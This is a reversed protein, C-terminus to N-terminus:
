NKIRIIADWPSQSFQTHEQEIITISAFQSEKILKPSWERVLKILNSNQAWVFWSIGYEQVNKKVFTTFQGVLKRDKGISLNTMIDKWDIEKELMNKIQLLMNIEDSSYGPSLTITMTPLTKVTGNKNNKAVMKLYKDNAINFTQLYNKFVSYYWITQYFDTEITPYKKEFLINKEGAFKIIEEVYHPCFPYIIILHVHIFRRILSPNKNIINGGYKKRYEDRAALLRYVGDVVVQRYDMIEFLKQATNIIFDIEARFVTDWFNDEQVPPNTSLWEIETHIWESETTLRLIATEANTETFNSDSIGGGSAEALAIRVPDAGFKEVAQRLTLFNGTSKSMKEGNLLIHGNIKFAQPWMAPNPWLEAHNYLSMTLHNSVLDKGSVRLDLPCWYLYEDKCETLIGKYELCNEPIDNQEGFLYEWLEYSMCDAPIDTILHAVTYYPMYATSDSLSDIMYETDLLQTGMGFSRSCPWYQLWTSAAKLADRISEDYVQINKIHDNVVEKWSEDGYRIFWQNVLAVVCHDGSRSIVLGDPEWFTFCINRDEMDKKIMPAAVDISLGNIMIGDEMESKHINKSLIGVDTGKQIGNKIIEIVPKGAITIASLIKNIDGGSKKYNKFDSVSHGPVSVVIGMGKDKNTDLPWVPIEKGNIEVLKNILDHGTINGIITLKDMQHIMNNYAHDTCVLRKGDLEVIIYNIEPNIWLNTAVTIVEPRTTAALLYLDLEKCYFKIVTYEKIGVGEGVSRDHDACPQGDKVSYIVPNKGYMLKNGRRLREFQWKVFSDYHPNMDTTIFSRSFDASIGFIELDQKAVDPWYKLWFKPDIFKELDQDEVGMKLLTTCQQGDRRGTTLEEKLRNACAVIPMGTGHFGFPFLVNKGLLEQYRCSFELPCITLAHGLHPRGNMYPYPFTGFFKPKNSKRRKFDVNKQVEKEIELIRDRRPWAQKIEAM